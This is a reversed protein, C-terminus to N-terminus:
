LSVWPEDGGSISGSPYIDNLNQRAVDDILSSAESSYQQLRRWGEEASCTPIAAKLAALFCCAEHLEELLDIQSDMGDVADGASSTRDLPFVFGSCYNNGDSVVTSNPKQHLILRSQNYHVALSPVGASETAWEPYASQLEKYSWTGYDDRAANLLPSGNIWVCHVRWLKQEVVNTDRTSVDASNAILTLDVKPSFTCCKKGILRQGWNILEVYDDDTPADGLFNDLDFETFKQVYTIAREVTM